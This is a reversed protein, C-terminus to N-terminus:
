NYLISEYLHTMLSGVYKIDINDIYKKDIKEFTFYSPVDKMHKNIYFKIDHPTNITIDAYMPKNSEPDILEKRYRRCIHRILSSNVSSSFYIRPNYNYVDNTKPIFGKEKIENSKSVTTLYHLKEPLQLRIYEPNNPEYQIIYEKRYEKSMSYEPTTSLFYGCSTMIKDIKNFTSNIKTENWTGPLYFMVADAIEQEDIQTYVSIQEITLNCEQMIHELVPLTKQTPQNYLSTEYLVPIPKHSIYNDNRTRYSLISSKTLSKNEKIYGTNNFFSETLLQKQSYKISDYNKIIRDINFYSEILHKINKNM